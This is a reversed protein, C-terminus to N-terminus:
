LLRTITLTLCLHLGQVLFMCAGASGRQYKGEHVPHHEWKGDMGIGDRVPDRDYDRGVATFHKSSSPGEM